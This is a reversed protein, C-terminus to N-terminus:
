PIISYLLNLHESLYNEPNVHLHRSCLCANFFFFVPFAPMDDDGLLVAKSLGARHTGLTPTSNKSELM